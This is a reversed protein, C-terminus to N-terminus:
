VSIEVYQWVRVRCSTRGMQGGAALFNAVPEGGGYGGVPASSPLRHAFGLQLRDDAVPELFPALDAERRRVPRAFPAAGADGEGILDDDIFLKRACVRGFEVHEGDRKEVRRRGQELMSRLRLLIPIQAADGLAGVDPTLSEGLGARPGVEGRQAGAGPGLATM